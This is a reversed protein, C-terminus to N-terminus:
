GFRVVLGLLFLALGTLIAGLTWSWRRRWLGLFSGIGDLRGTAAAAVAWNMEWTLGGTSRLLRALRALDRGRAREGSSEVPLSLLWWRQREADWAVRGPELSLLGGGLRHLTGLLRALEEGLQAVAPSPLPGSVLRDTLTECAPLARVLFALGDPGSHDLDLIPPLLGAPLRESWALETALAPAPAVRITVPQGQGRARFLRDEGSGALEELIRYSQGHREGRLIGGLALRNM